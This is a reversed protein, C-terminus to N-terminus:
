TAAAAKLQEVLEAPAVLEEHATDRIIAAGVQATRFSEAFSRLWEEQDDDFAVFRELRSSYMERKTDILDHRPGNLQLAGDEIVAAALVDFETGQPLPRYVLVEIV